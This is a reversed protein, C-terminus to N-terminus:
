QATESEREDFRVHLNGEDPEGVPHAGSACLRGCSERNWVYCAWSVSSASRGLDARAERLCRTGDDSFTNRRTPSTITSPGTPSRGRVTCGPQAAVPGVFSRRQGCHVAGCRGVTRAFAIGCHNAAPASSSSIVTTKFFSIHAQIVARIQHGARYAWPTTYFLTAM